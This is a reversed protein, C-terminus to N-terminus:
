AACDPRATTPCGARGGARGCRTASRRGREGGRPVDQRERAHERQRQRLEHPVLPQRLDPAPQRRGPTEEDIVQRGRADVLCVYVPATAVLQLRVRRPPGSPRPAAAGRRRRRRRLRGRADARDRAGPEPRRRSSTTASGRRARVARGAAGGRLRRDGAVADPRWGGGASGARALALPRVADPGADVPARLAPPVGRGAAASRPGPVRRVHAPVDQRVHSGAAPGVGRERARAPVQRPDEDGSEVETM